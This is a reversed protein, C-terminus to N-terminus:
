VRRQLRSEITFGDLRFVNSTQIAYMEFALSKACIGYDIRSQFQSIVMTRGLVITSGYDQYFNISIAITTSFTDTNIYLRRYQEQISDGLPKIFRTKAYSTIGTGNDTLFSSGFWNVAGQYTGYFLNKSNNRGQMSRLASVAPGDYKSWAGVLYDYVVMLNNTTSGNVPISIVIQNRLKDHEMCAETLAATYNMSEFIAQVKNSIVEISAGNYKIVGKRDLFIFIDDYVIACNNNMCGYEYSIDQVFFNAPNDGYLAHFSNLKMIYLKTSYARIATVQDGDNTRVEFNSDAQYGEPDGTESFWVTSPTSSFGALFMRNQYIELYRPYYGETIVTSLTTGGSLTFTTGPLFITPLTNNTGQVNNAVVGASIGGLTTGYYIYAFSAGGSFVQWNSQYVYPYNNITSDTAIYLTTSASHYSYVNISAIDYYRPTDIAYRMTLYSGGGGVSLTAGNMASTNITAVPWIPGEDGASNVYAAYVAYWGTSVGIGVDFSGNTLGGGSATGNLAVPPPMTLQTFTVGNYKFFKQGDAGYLYNDFTVFDLQNRGMVQDNLNFYATGDGPVPYTGSLPSYAPVQSTLVPGGLGAKAESDFFNFALTGGRLSVGQSNGTTAGLWIGGTHAIVVYSAGNLQLYEYLSQIQGSFTQGVYMTSGWRQTLAGPRQFDLNIIDLFEMPGTDYTSLKSNIGGMNSYNESKLKENSM